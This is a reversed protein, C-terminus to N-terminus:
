NQKREIYQSSFSLLKIWYASMFLTKDINKFANKYFGLKQMHLRSIESLFLISKPSTLNHIHEKTVLPLKHM